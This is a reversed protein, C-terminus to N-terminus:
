FCTRLSFHIKAAFSADERRFIKWSQACSACGHCEDFNIEGSGDKDVQAAFKSPPSHFLSTLLSCQTTIQEIESIERIIATFKRLNRDSLPRASFLSEAFRWTKDHKGNESFM